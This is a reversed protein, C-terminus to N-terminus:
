GVKNAAVLVLEMTKKVTIPMPVTKVVHITVLKVTIVRNVIYVPGRALIVLDTVEVFKRAIKTAIYAM